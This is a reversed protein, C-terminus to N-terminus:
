CGARSGRRDRRGGPAAQRRPRVAARRGYLGLVLTSRGRDREGYRREDSGRGGQKGGRGWTRGVLGLFHRSKTVEAPRPMMSAARLYRLGQVCAREPGEAGTTYAVSSCAAASSTQGMGVLPM